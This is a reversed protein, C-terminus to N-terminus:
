HAPREASTGFQYAGLRLVLLCAALLAIVFLCLAPTYDAFLTYSSGMVFPGAGGGMMFAAFLYGYIEGFSRLGFYRSILYAILDVEAGLGLGVLVAAALMWGIGGGAILILIGILPAAFFMMAVRPAFLRDLLYGAILRGVILAIGSMSVTLTALGPKVGRDGLLPVLHAMMGSAAMAVFLFSVALIWFAGTRLADSATLGPAQRPGDSAEAERAGVLFAMSPFAIVFVLVGIIQYAARWGYEAILAQALMPLLASGLGVGAM